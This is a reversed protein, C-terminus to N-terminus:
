MRSKVGSPEKKVLRPVCDWLFLDFFGVYKRGAQKESRDKSFSTCNCCETGENGNTSKPVKQNDSNPRGSNDSFTSPADLQLKELRLKFTNIRETQRVYVLYEAKGVLKPM